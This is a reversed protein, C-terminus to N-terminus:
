GDGQRGKIRKAGSYSEDIEIAGRFPSSQERSQHDQSAWNLVLLAVNGIHMSSVVGWFIELRESILLPGTQVRQMLLAALLMAAGPTFPIGLSLMPVM